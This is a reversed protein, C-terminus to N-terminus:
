GFRKSIPETLRNSVTAYALMEGMKKMFDEFYSRYQMAMDKDQLNDFMKEFGIRMDRMGEAMGFIEEM